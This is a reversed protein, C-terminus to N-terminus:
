SGSIYGIRVGLYRSKWVGMWQSPENWEVCPERAWGPVKGESKLVDLRSWSRLWHPSQPDSSCLQWPWSSGSPTPSLPAPCPDAGLEREKRWCVAEKTWELAVVALPALLAQSSEAQSRMYFPDFHFFVFIVIFVILSLSILSLPFAHPVCPCDPLFFFSFSIARMYPRDVACACASFEKFETTPCTAVWFIGNALSIYRRNDNPRELCTM